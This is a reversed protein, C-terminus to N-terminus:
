GHACFMTAEIGRDGGLAVSVHCSALLVIGGAGKRPRIFLDLFNLSM